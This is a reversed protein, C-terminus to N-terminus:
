MPLSSYRMEGPLLHKSFDVFQRNNGEWRTRVEGCSYSGSQIQGPIQVVSCRDHNLYTNGNLQVGFRKKRLEQFSTTVV